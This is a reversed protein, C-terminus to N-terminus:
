FPDGPEYRSSESLPMHRCHTTKDHRTAVHQPCTSFRSHLHPTPTTSASPHIKLVQRAFVMNSHDPGMYLTPAVRCLFRCTWGILLKTTTVPSLYLHPLPPSTHHHHVRSSTDGCGSLHRCHKLLSFPDGPDYRSSASLPM